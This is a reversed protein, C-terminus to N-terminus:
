FQITLQLTGVLADPYRGGPHVIYQLDPILAAWKRLPVRYLTELALENSYPYGTQAGFHADNACFGLVDGPRAALPGAWTVGGSLNWDIPNVSSQTSAGELFMRVGSGQQGPAPAANGGAPQWLTQDLVAYYGQAGDREGGSSNGIRPFTGTHGWVGLKLNGDANLFPANAWAVGTEGVFLAGNREPQANQPHGNFVGFTQDRNSDFVGFNVYWNKVPTVSVLLGPMPDPTTPMTFFAPPIQSSSHLFLQGNDIVSFETNGDFKGIKLRLKGDLLQQQYWMEFIQLYPDANYKDFLQLDGTRATSPNRWAHDELDIYFQGGQLNFAKQTDLTLNIDFTTSGVAGTRIGGRMNDFGELVLQANITVGADQLRQRAGDWGGTAKDDFSGATGSSDAAPPATSKGGDQAMAPNAAALMGCLIFLPLFHRACLKM